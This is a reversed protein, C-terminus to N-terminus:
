KCYKYATAGFAKYRDWFADDAATRSMRIDQAKQPDRFFRVAKRQERRTLVQDAVDQICSCLRRSAAPRDAKICARQIQGGAQVVPATVPLSIAAVFTAM